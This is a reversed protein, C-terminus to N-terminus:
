RGAPRTAAAAELLARAWQAYIADAILAHYAPAPHPDGASVFLSEIPRGSTGLARAVPTALDVPELGREAAARLLSDRLREDLGEEYFAFIVPV